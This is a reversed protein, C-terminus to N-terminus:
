GALVQHVSGGGRRVLVAAETAFTTREFHVLRSSRALLLWDMVAMAADRPRRRSVSRGPAAISEVGLTQLHRSWFEIENRDDGLVIWDQGRAAVAGLTARIAKRDPAQHRRDGFRLHLASCGPPALRTAMREIHSRFALSAFYDAKHQDLETDLEPEAAASTFHDGAWIIVARASPCELAAGLAAMFAQEGQDFGRLLIIEGGAWTTLYKPPLRESLGIESRLASFSIFDQRPARFIRRATAPFVNSEPVWAIRFTAGLRKAMLSAAAMARLRNGWGNLPVVTISEVM